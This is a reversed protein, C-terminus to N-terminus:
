YESALSEMTSNGLGSAVSAGCIFTMETIIIIFFIHMNEFPKQQPNKEQLKTQIRIM